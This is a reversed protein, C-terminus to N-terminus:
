ERRKKEERERDDLWKAHLRKKFHDIVARQADTLGAKVDEKAEDGMVKLVLSLINAFARQDGQIARAVGGKIMARQKSVRRVRGDERIEILEDLEEALETKLNRSGKPRGKPNGSSGKKFQTHKPPMRAALKRTM